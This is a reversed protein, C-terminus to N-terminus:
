RHPPPAAVAPHDWGIKGVRSAGGPSGLSAQQNAESIIWTALEVSGADWIQGPSSQVRNVGPVRDVEPRGREM